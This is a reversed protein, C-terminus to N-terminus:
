FRTGAFTWVVKEIEPDLAKFSSTHNLVVRRVSKPLWSERAQKFSASRTWVRPGSYALILESLDGHATTTPAPWSRQELM